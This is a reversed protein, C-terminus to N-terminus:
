HNKFDSVTPGSSDMREDNESLAARENTGSLMAQESTQRLMTQEDTESPMMYYTGCGSLVFSNPEKLCYVSRRYSWRVVESNNVIIVVYFQIFSVIDDM